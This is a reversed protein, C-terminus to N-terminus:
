TTTPQLRASLVDGLLWDIARKVGIGYGPSLPLGSMEPQEMVDLAHLRETKLDRTTLESLRAGTIPAKNERSLVWALAAILGDRYGAESVHDGMGGGNSRCDSDGCLAIVEAIQQPSRVVDGFGEVLEGPNDGQVPVHDDDGILWRLITALVARRPAPASSGGANLVTASVIPAPRSANVNPNPQAKVLRIGGSSATLAAVM